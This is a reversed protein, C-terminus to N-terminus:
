RGSLLNEGREASDAEGVRRAEGPVRHAVLAVCLLGRDLPRFPELRLV